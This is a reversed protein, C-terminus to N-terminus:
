RRLRPHKKLTIEIIDLPYSSGDEKPVMIQKAERNVEDLINLNKFLSLVYEARPLNADTVHVKVNGYNEYNQPQLSKLLALVYKEAEKKAIAIVQGYDEKEEETM